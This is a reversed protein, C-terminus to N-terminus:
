EPMMANHRVVFSDAKKALKALAWPSLHPNYISAGDFRFWEKTEHMEADCVLGFAVGVIEQDCMHQSFYRKGGKWPARPHGKKHSDMAAETTIDVGVQAYWREEPTGENETGFIYTWGPKYTCLNFIAIADDKTMM